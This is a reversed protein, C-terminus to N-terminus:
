KCQSHHCELHTIIKLSIQHKMETKFLKANIRLGNSSEDNQQYVYYHLLPETHLPLTILSNQATRPTKKTITVSMRVSMRVSPRVSPCVRNYLHSSADLFPFGDSEASASSVIFIWGKLSFHCRQCTMQFRMVMAEYTLIWLHLASTDLVRRGCVVTKM